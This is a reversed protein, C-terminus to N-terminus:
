IVKPYYFWHIPKELSYIYIHEHALTFVHMCVHMREREKEIWTYQYLAFKYVCAQVKGNEGM